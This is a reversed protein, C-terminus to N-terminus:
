LLSLVAQPQQNAQAMIATAAQQIIQTRALESTAAAYDTDTVRSRSETVNQAINAANDAAHTLRNIGAGIVSRNAALTAIATDLASVASAASAASAVTSSAIGSFQDATTQKGIVVEITQSSNAGVQFSFTSAGGMNGGDGTLLDFNNWQTDTGIRDIEDRLASFEDQMATRQASSYTDNQALVGLERMRQMMVTQEEMAGDATQLMSIADNANRVAANLGKIQATMNERISLGAADDAAGNIRSGTSLSQMTNRMNRGNVTLANAAMLSKINTNIVTSM